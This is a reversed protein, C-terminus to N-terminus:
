IAGNPRDSVAGQESSIEVKAKKPYTSLLNIAPRVPIATEGPAFIEAMLSASNEFEGLLVITGGGTIARVVPGRMMKTRSAKPKMGKLVDLLSKVDVTARM